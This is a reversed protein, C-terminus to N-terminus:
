CVAGVPICTWTTWCLSCYTGDACPTPCSAAPDCASPYAVRVGARQAECGNGYTVGDCGCAPERVAPCVEPRRQCTGVDGCWDGACYEASGCDSNAMCSDTPSVGCEGRREVRVGRAQATCENPYTNGDCGCVPAYVDACVEPRRECTGPTGCGEGACYDVDHCESNDRCDPGSPECAGDHQIRMGHSAADCANSYTVGDCGCVPRIYLPCAGPRPECTGPGDCGEGACYDGSDCGFEGYCASPSGADECVLVGCSCPDSPDPVYHCGPPPPACPTPLCAADVSADRALAGDEPSVAGDEPSVAGDEPSVAGDEPSVAGDEPSVAGDIPTVGGDLASADVGPGADAPGQTTGCECGFALLSLAALGVLGLRANTYALENM